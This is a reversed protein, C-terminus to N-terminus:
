SLTILTGLFILCFAIHEKYYFKEFIQQLSHHKKKQQSVIPTLSFIFFMPPLVRHVTMCVQDHGVM